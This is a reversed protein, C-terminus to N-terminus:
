VFGSGVGDARTVIYSREGCRMSSDSDDPTVGATNRAFRAPLGMVGSNGNATRRDDPPLRPIATTSM